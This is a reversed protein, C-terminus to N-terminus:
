TFWRQWLTPGQLYIQFNNKGTGCFLTTSKFKKDFQLIYNGSGRTEWGIIKIKTFIRDADSTNTELLNYLKTGHRFQFNISDIKNPDYTCYFNDGYEIGSIRVEVVKLKYPVTFRTGTKGEVTYIVPQAEKVFIDLPNTQVEVAVILIVVLIGIGLIQQKKM